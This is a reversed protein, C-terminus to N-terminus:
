EMCGYLRGVILEVLEKFDHSYENDSVDKLHARLRGHQEEYDKRIDGFVEHKEMLALIELGEEDSLKEKGLKSAFLRREDLGCKELLIIAPLTMKGERIDQFRRKGTVSEDCLYDIVDDAIQFLRGAGLAIDVLLKITDKGAGAVRAGVLVCAKVLAATKNEIVEYYEDVSCELRYDLDMERLQGFVLEELCKSIIEVIVPNGTLSAINMSRAIFHDGALIAVENGYRANISPKGRRVTASDIVDDHFLTSNHLLEVAVACDTHKTGCYGCLRATTVVLRPRLLKGGDPIISEAGNISEVNRICGEDNLKDAAIRMDAAINEHM